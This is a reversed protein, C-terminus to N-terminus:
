DKCHHNKSMACCFSKYIGALILFIPWFKLTAHHDPVLNGILFFIGFLAILVGWGIHQQHTHMLKKMFIEM